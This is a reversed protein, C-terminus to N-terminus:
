RPAKSTPTSPSGEILTAAARIRSGTNAYHQRERSDLSALRRLLSGISPVGAAPAATAIVAGFIVALLIRRV